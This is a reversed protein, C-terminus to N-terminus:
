EELPHEVTEMLEEVNAGEDPLLRPYGGLLVLLDGDHGFVSLLLEIEVTRGGVTTEALYAEVRRDSGLIPLGFTEDHSINQLSGYSGEVEGRVEELVQRADMEAVPNQTSGLIEMAPMSVAAFVAAEENEAIGQISVRKTYTAAWLSAHIDREIGFSVTEEIREWGTTGEEYGTEGLTAESARVISADFEIPGGTVVDLCGSAFALAGTAGGALVARRSAM